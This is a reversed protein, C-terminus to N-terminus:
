ILSYKEAMEYELQASRKIGLFKAPSLTAKTKTTIILAISVSFQESISFDIQESWFESCHRRLSAFHFKEM